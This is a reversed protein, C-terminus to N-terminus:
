NETKLAERATHYRWDRFCSRALEARLRARGLLGEGGLDRARVAGEAFHCALLLYSTARSPKM